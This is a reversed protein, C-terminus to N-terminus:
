SVGPHSSRIIRYMVELFTQLFSSMDFKIHNIINKCNRWRYKMSNTYIHTIIALFKNYIQHIFGIYENMCISENMHCVNWHYVQTHWRSIRFSCTVYPHHKIPEHKLTPFIVNIQVFSPIKSAQNRVSTLKLTCLHM